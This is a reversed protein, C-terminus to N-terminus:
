ARDGADTDEPRRLGPVTNCSNSKLDLAHVRMVDPLEKIRLTYSDPDTMMACLRDMAM